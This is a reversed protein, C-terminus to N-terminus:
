NRYIMDTCYNYRKTKLTSSQGSIPTFHDYTKNESKPCIQHACDSQKKQLPVAKTPSLSLRFNHSSIEAAIFGAILGKGIGRAVLGAVLGGLFSGVLHGVGPFLYEIIM